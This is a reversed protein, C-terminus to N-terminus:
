ECGWERIMRQMEDFEYDSYNPKHQMIINKLKMYKQHLKFVSAKVDSPLFGICTCQSNTKQGGKVDNFICCNSSCKM